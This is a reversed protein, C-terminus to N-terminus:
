RGFFWGIFVFAFATIMPAMPLHWRSIVFAVSLSSAINIALVSIIMWKRATLFKLIKIM